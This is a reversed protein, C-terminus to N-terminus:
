KQKEKYYKLLLLNNVEALYSVSNLHNGLELYVAIAKENVDYDKLFEEESSYEKEM